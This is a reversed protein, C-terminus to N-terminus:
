RLSASVVARFAAADTVALDALIKRDLLINAKALNGILRSYSVGELRAAANIRITWLKRFMRKRVKRDRFEYRMARKVTHHAVTYLRSRGGVFGKARRLVKKHRARSPVAHKARM